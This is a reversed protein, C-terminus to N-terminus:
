KPAPTSGTQGTQGTAGTPVAPAPTKPEESAPTPADEPRGTPHRPAPPLGSRLEGLDFGLPRSPRLASVVTLPVITQRAWCAFDYVNMPFWSPFLIVEPPLAPLDNWSWEGFLALWVRTV